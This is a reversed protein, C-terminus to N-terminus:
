KPSDVEMANRVERVGPLGSVLDLARGISYEDPVAGGVTVVGAHTLVRFRGGALGVDTRLLTEAQDNLVADLTDSAVGVAAIAPPHDTAFATLGLGTLLTAAAFALPALHRKIM